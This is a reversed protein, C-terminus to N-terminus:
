WRVTVGGMMARDIAPANGRRIGIDADLNKAFSYIVGFVRQRLSTDSSAAPNTDWSFDAVLKLSESPKLWPSVSFHGLNERQGSTSRNKRYGAHSHVAWKEREYSVILLSGYTTKGTGLGREDKGTPLTLGPKLGLSLAGNEWFRWKLDVFSDGKGGTTGPDQYTGTLQLDANDIFGYSLTAAGAKGRIGEDKNREGNLELQWGGKGQTGTDETILPHAAYASGSFLIGM